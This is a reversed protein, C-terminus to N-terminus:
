DIKVNTIEYVKGFHYIFEDYDEIALNHAQQHTKYAEYLNISDLGEDTFKDKTDPCIYHLYSIKYTEDKFDVFAEGQKMPMQKGTSPSRM